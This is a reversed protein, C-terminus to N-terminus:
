DLRMPFTSLFIKLQRLKQGALNNKSQLLVDKIVLSLSGHTVAVTSVRVNEGMVVTGTRENLVVKAQIDPKVELLEM